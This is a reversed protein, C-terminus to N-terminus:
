SRNKRFQALLTTRKRPGPRQNWAEAAQTLQARGDDLTAPRPESAIFHRVFRNYESLKRKGRRRRDVQEADADFEVAEGTRTIFSVHVKDRM